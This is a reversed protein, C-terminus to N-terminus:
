IIIRQMYNGKDQQKTRGRVDSLGGEGLERSKLSWGCKKIFILM